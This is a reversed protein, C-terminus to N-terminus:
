FSYNVNITSIDLVIYQVTFSVFEYRLVTVNKHKFSLNYDTRSQKGSEIILYTVFVM